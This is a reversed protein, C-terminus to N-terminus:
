LLLKRAKRYFYVGYVPMGLSGVVGLIGLGTVLGSKEVAIVFSWIALFVFMLTSVTVFVIHFARLSM